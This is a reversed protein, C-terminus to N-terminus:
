QVPWERWGSLLPFYLGLRLPEPGLRAVLRAYRALQERYRVVENDLFVDLGGGEHLSTKFDVVWRVGDADIFTRDIIANVLSGEIEGSLALETRVARHEPAFLWRGRADALTRTLADIVREVALRRESAPVGLVALLRDFRRREDTVEGPGPLAGKRSWRDLEAHVTTGVHRSVESVWDFTPRSPEVMAPATAGAGVAVDPAPLRWGPRHRRLVARPLVDFPMERQVPHRAFAQEFQTRVASWLFKLPSGAEPTRLEFAGNAQRVNVHGFLHLERRARTVAVYLLRASEFAACERVREAVYDAHPDDTTGKRAIPALLLGAPGERQPVELWHLLPSLNRQRGRGLGPLLVVDFELGKAKHITMIQLNAPAAPDPEAFLEAFRADFAEAAPLVGRAELAELHDFFATADELAGGGLAAAPGGLALWLGEARRRISTRGARALADELAQRALAARRRGDDSLRTTVEPDALLERITRHPAGRVLCELDALTLGGVPSRLLSLWATRDGEHLLARTIAFLDRVVPRSALTELEVAQFRINKERLGTAIHAVHARQRTLIGITAEPKRRRVKAITALLEETEPAPDATFYPHVTVAPASAERVAESPAHSVAGRAIDDSTPLVEAFVRNFWEILGRQSRFNSELRLPEFAVSPLGQDRTRLFLGVEAQRFRYISQMPDGVCFLSRGDGASWEATLANLLAFQASSTDQYEDVLLHRIRRDLALALENPGEAGSLAHVAAQLVAPFDVVGRERFVLELEAAALKLVEILAETVRWHEDSLRAPPTRRLWGLETALLPRRSLEALLALLTGKEARAASPFGHQVNLTRRWECRETLLLEALSQWREIDDATERPATPKGRWVALATGDIREAASAVVAAVSELNERPWLARVARVHGLIERELDRELRARLEMGSREMVLPLWQDRKALMAVILQEAALVQNDRHRLLVAVAEAAVDQGAVRALTRQAAEAYLERADDALELEAGARALVPSQAALTRCFADITHIRLRAPHQELAWGRADAQARAARALDRTRADHEDKAGAAPSRGSLALLIRRRMEAAAKRTFTIAVIQEPAEVLALLRLFRQTLLSTKGSGAPAQVIFSQEPDLARRRAAADSM